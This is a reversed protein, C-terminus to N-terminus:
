GLLDLHPREYISCFLYSCLAGRQNCMMTNSFYDYFHKFCSKVFSISTPASLFTKQNKTMCVIAVFCPISGKCFWRPSCLQEISENFSIFIVPLSVPHRPTLTVPLSSSQVSLPFYNNMYGAKSNLDNTNSNLLLIPRKPTLFVELLFWQV